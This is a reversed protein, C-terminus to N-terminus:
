NLQIRNLTIKKLAGEVLKLYLGFKKYDSSMKDGRVLIKM